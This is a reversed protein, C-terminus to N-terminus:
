EIYNDNFDKNLDDLNPKANYKLHIEELVEYTKGIDTLKEIDSKDYSGHNGVFRYKYSRFLGSGFVLISYNENLDGYSLEWKEITYNGWANESVKYLPTKKDLYKSPIPLLFGNFSLTLLINVSFTIIVYGVFIIVLYVLNIIDIM